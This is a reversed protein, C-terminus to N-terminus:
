STVICGLRKASVQELIDIVGIARDTPLARLLERGSRSSLAHKLSEFSSNCGDSAGSVATPPQKPELTPCTDLPPDPSHSNPWTGVSSTQWTSLMIATVGNEEIDVSPGKVKPPCTCRHKPGHNNEPATMNSASSPPRYSFDFHARLVHPSSVVGRILRWPFIGRSTVAIPTLDEDWLRSDSNSRRKVISSLQNDLSLM